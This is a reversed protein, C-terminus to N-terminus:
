SVKRDEESLPRIKKLRLAITTGHSDGDCAAEKSVVAISGGFALVFEKALSMGFGTGAENKTGKRSTRAGQVFLNSQIHEPMGTGQDVVAIEIWEELETAQLIIESGPYSFKIANSVLNGLIQIKLNAVNALVAMNEPTNNIYSKKIVLNKENLKDEYLKAVDDFLSLINVPEIEIWFKGERLAETMRVNEIIEYITNAGNKIMNWIRESKEVSLVPLKEKLQIASQISHLPNSLDHYLIRLLSKLDIQDTQKVDEVVKKVDKLKLREGLAIALLAVATSTTILVMKYMPIGFNLTFTEVLFRMFYAATLVTWGALLYPAAKNEEKIMNFSIMWSAFLTTMSFIAITRNYNLAPFLMSTVVLAGAFLLMVTTFKKFGSYGLSNESFNATALLVFAPPVMQIVVWVVAQSLMEIHVEFYYLIGQRDGTMLLLGLVLGVFYLYSSERNTIGVFIAYILLAIMIGLYSGLFLTRSTQHHQLAYNNFLYPSFNLVQRSQIKFYIDAKEGQAVQLPLAAGLTHPHGTNHMGDERMAQRVKIQQDQVVFAEAHDFRESDFYIFWDRNRASINQVSFKLWVVHHPKHVRRLLQSKRWKDSLEPNRLWEEISIRAEEDLYFLYADEANIAQTQAEIKITQDSPVPLNRTLLALRSLESIHAFITVIIGILTCSLFARNV